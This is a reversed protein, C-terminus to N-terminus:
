LPFSVGFAFAGNTQKEEPHELYQFSLEFQYRAGLALGIAWPVHYMLGRRSVDLTPGVRTTLRGVSAGVGLEMFPGIYPLPVMLRFKAGFFGIRGSVDCPTVGVPCDSDSSV